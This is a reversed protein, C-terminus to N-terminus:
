TLLGRNKLYAHLTLKGANVHRGITSESYSSGTANNYRNALESISPPYGNELILDLRVILIGREPERLRQIDERIVEVLEHLEVSEDGRILLDDLECYDIPLRSKARLLDIAKRYAIKYLLTSLKGVATISQRQAMEFVAYGVSDWIDAAEQFYLQDGFKGVIWRGIRYRYQCDLEALALLVLQDDGSRLWQRLEDAVVPEKCGGPDGGEGPSRV